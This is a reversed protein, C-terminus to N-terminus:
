LYRNAFGLSFEALNEGCHFPKSRIIETMEHVDLDLLDDLASFPPGPHDSIMLFHFHLSKVQFALTRAHLFRFYRLNLVIQPLHPLCFFFFCVLLCFLCM